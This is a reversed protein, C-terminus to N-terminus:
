IGYVPSPLSQQSINAVAASQQHEDAIGNVNTEWHMLLFM